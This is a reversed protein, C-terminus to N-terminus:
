RDPTEPAQSARVGAEMAGSVDYRCFPCLTSTRLTRRDGLRWVFFGVAGALTILPVLSRFVLDVHVLRYTIAVDAYSVSPDSRSLREYEVELSSSPRTSDSPTGMFLVISDVTHSPLLTSGIPPIALRLLGGFFLLGASTLLVIGGIKRSAVVTGDDRRRRPEVDATAPERPALRLGVGCEPCIAEAPTGPSTRAIAVRSTLRRHANLWVWFAIGGLLITGAISKQFAYNFIIATKSAPRTKGPLFTGDLLGSDELWYRLVESDYVNGINRELDPIVHYSLGGVLLFTAIFAM